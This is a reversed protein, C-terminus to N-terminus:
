VSVGSRNRKGFNRRDVGFPRKVKASTSSLAATESARPKETQPSAPLRSVGFTPAIVALLAGQAALSDSGALPSSEPLREVRNVESLLDHKALTAEIKMRRFNANFGASDAPPPAPSFPAKLTSNYPLSSPASVAPATTSCILVLAAAKVIPSLILTKM